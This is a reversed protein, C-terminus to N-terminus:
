CYRKAISPLNKLQRADYDDPGVASVKAAKIAAELQDIEFTCRSPRAKKLFEKDRKVLSSM